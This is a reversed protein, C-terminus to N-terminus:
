HDLGNYSPYLPGSAIVLIAGARMAAFGMM